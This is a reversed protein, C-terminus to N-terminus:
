RVAQGASNRATQERALARTFSVIRRILSNYYSHAGQGLRDQILAYLAHSILGPIEGPAPPVSIGLRTLAPAAELILLAEETLRGCRLDEIGACVLEAGPLGALESKLDSNM